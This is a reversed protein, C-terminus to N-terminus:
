EYLKIGLKKSIKESHTGTRSNKWKELAKSKAVKNGEKRVRSERENSEKKFQKLEKGEM